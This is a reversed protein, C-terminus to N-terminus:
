PSWIAPQVSSVANHLSRRDALRSHRQLRACFHVSTNPTIMRGSFGELHEALPRGIGPAVIPILKPLQKEDVRDNTVEPVTNWACIILAHIPLMERRVTVSQDILGRIMKM